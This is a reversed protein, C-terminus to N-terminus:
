NRHRARGAGGAAGAAGAAHAQRLGAGAARRAAYPSLSFPQIYLTQTRHRGKVTISRENLRRTCRRCWRSCGGVAHEQRLGAGAHRLVANEAVVCAPLISHIPSVTISRWITIGQKDLATQLAPQMHKGCGLVLVDARLMWM